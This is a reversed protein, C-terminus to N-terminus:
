LMPFLPSKGFVRRFLKRQSQASFGALERLCAIAATQFFRDFVLNFYVVFPKYFL